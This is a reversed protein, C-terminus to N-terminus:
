FKIAEKFILIFEAHSIKILSISQHSGQAQFYFSNKSRSINEQFKENIFLHLIGTSDIESRVLGADDINFILSVDDVLQSYFYNFFQKAIKTNEKL